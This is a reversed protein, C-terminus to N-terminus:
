KKRHSHMTMAPVWKGDFDVNSTMVKHDPSKIEITERMKVIKGGQMPCPGMTNLTLVKGSEDVTGEYDWLMSGSSDLWTGIYKQKEPSYGLTMIGTFPAGMMEGNIETQVWFGGISRTSETGSTKMAPADPGMHMEGECTWEGTLQKLWEHEKQPKPMKSMDPMQHTEQAATFSATTSLAVALMAALMTNKM